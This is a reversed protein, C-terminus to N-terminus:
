RTIGRYQVPAATEEESSTDSKEPQPLPKGEMWVRQNKHDLILTYRSLLGLGIRAPFTEPLGLDAHTFLAVDDIQLGGLVLPGTVGEIDGPLSLDFSGATDIVLLIPEGGLTGQVTPRGRWDRLPLNALVASTAGPKYTSHSSFRVTRNPFDFRIFAFSRMLAAGMVAQIKTGLAQYAKADPTEDTHGEARALPGLNGRAPPLYCIPSEIHLEQLIIKNAVGAYGPIDSVVHDAYEGMPPKFTRYDMNKITSMLLWNQRASSDLLLYLDDFTASGSRARIVPARSSTPGVFSSQASRDQHVRNAFEFRPGAADSYITIGYNRADRGSALFPDLEDQSIPIQQLTKPSTCGATFLLAAFLLLQITSRDFMLCGVIAFATAPFCPHLSASFLKGCHPFM